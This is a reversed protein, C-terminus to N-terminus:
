RRFANFPINDGFNFKALIQGVKSDRYFMAKADVAKQILDRGVEVGSKVKDVASSIARSPSSGSVAEILAPLAAWMSSPYNAAMYRQNDNVMSQVYRQNENVMSQVIKSTETYKDAVALNNIASMTQTQLKNQNDMITGLLNVMAANASTDVEGKAGSSTVGSATAGSGVSAGNGNMASLVPNLGAAKLDAIERQHATNSMYQQWDRNKQAEVRNFEMAKANQQVQWDRQIQAQEASRASNYDAVGQIALLSASANNINEIVNDM